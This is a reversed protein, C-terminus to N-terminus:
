GDEFGESLEYALEGIYEKFCNTLDDGFSPSSNQPYDKYICDLIKDFHIDTVGLIVEEPEFGEYCKVDARQVDLFSKTFDKSFNKKLIEKDDDCKKLLEDIKNRIQPQINNLPTIDGTLVSLLDMVKLQSLCIGIIDYEDNGDNLWENESIINSLTSNNNLSNM